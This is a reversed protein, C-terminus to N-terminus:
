SVVINADGVTVFPLRTDLLKKVALVADAPIILIAIILLGGSMGNEPLPWIATILKAEFVPSFPIM